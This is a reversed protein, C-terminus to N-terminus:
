RVVTLKAAAAARTAPPTRVLRGLNLKTMADEIRKTVSARGPKGKLYRVVAAESCPAAIAIRMRTDHSLTM